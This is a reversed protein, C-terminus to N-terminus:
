CLLNRRKKNPRENNEERWFDELEARELIAQELYADVLEEGEILMKHELDDFNSQFDQRMIVSIEEGRKVAYEKLENEYKGM